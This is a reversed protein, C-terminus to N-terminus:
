SRRHEGLLIKLGIILGQDAIWSSSILSLSISVQKNEHVFKLDYNIATSPGMKMTEGGIELKIYDQGLEVDVSVTFVAM